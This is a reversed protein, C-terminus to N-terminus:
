PSPLMIDHHSKFSSDIKIYCELIKAMLEYVIPHPETYILVTDGKISVSDIDGTNFKAIRRTWGYREIDVFDHMNTITSIQYWKATIDGGKFIKEHLHKDVLLCSAFSILVLFLISYKMNIFLNHVFNFSFNQWILKILSCQEMTKNPM